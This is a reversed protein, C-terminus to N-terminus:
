KVETRISRIDFYKKLAITKSFIKGVEGVGLIESKDTMAMPELTTITRDVPPSIIDMGEELFQTSNPLTHSITSWYAPIDPSDKEYMEFSSVLTYYSHHSLGFQLKYFLYENSNNFNYTVKANSNPHNNISLLNDYNLSDYSGLFSFEKLGYVGGSIPLSALTIKNVMKPAEFQYQLWSPASANSGNDYWYTSDNKDFARWAPDYAGRATAKGVPSTDSTMNPVVNITPDKGLLKPTFKKYEGDHLIFTKNQIVSEFYFENFQVYMAKLHIKYRGRKLLPSVIYWDELNNTKTEEYIQYIGNEDLKYIIIEKGTGGGSDSYAGSTAWFVCDNKVEFEIHSTSERLLVAGYTGQKSTIGDHLLGQLQSPTIQVANGFPTALNYSSIYEFEVSPNTKEPITTKAM